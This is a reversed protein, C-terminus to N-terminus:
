ILNVGQQKYYQVKGDKGVMCFASIDPFTLLRMQEPREVVVLRKLTGKCPSSLAHNILIEKEEPVHIVDYGESETFFTLAVPFDSVTHYITEPLFDLLVWFASLIDPNPVTDRSYLVLDKDPLWILRGAKQLRRILTRVTTEPLEPYLKRLQRLSLAQYLYLFRIIEVLHSEQQRNKYKMFEGKTSAIAAFVYM